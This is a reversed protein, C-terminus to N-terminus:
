YCPYCRYEASNRLTPIDVNRLETGNGTTFITFSYFRVLTIGWGLPTRTYCANRIVETLMLGFM